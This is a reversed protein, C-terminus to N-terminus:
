GWSCGGRRCGDDSAAVARRSLLNGRHRACRHREVIAPGPAGGLVAGRSPEKTARIPAATGKGTADPGDDVDSRAVANAIVDVCGARATGEVTLTGSKRALRTICVPRRKLTLQHKNAFLMLGRIRESSCASWALVMYVHTTCPLALCM